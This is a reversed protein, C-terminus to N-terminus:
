FKRGTSKKQSGPVYNLPQLKNQNQLQEISPISFGNSSGQNAGGGSLMNQPLVPPNLSHPNYDLPALQAMAKNNKRQIGGNEPSGLRLGAPM